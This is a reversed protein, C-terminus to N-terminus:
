AEVASGSRRELCLEYAARDLEDRFDPHALSILARAREELDLGHLNVVGYETAVYHVHARSTTVGAGARLVPVIRSISGDRATASLAIIPKGGRSLAAGRMFDMQGGVGSYIKPGISEACVQGTLDVEIASNIAMMTDLRVIVSTNNTYDAPRMELMPNNDAFRYLRHSGNLFAAVIKGKNLTKREGTVVGREVLDLIGDSLVETHVGLDRHGKLAKLVADPIGGIGLQLTAGDPILGAVHQAIAAYEPTSAVPKIEFLPEDVPVLHTLQSVHIFSDGLTRPVQPNIQAIRVSAAEAAALTCDVSTGCSCYGHEDPPSLNLLVVDVPLHGNRFLDPVDSLFIPVYSARGSDVAERVNPGVFLARHHFVGAYREEVYPARGNTHLHIIEVDSLDRATDARRVLADILTQPFASAGHVYVRDGSKIDRVAEDATSYKLNM